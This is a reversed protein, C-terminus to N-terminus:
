REANLGIMASACSAQWRDVVGLGACRQHLPRESQRDEDARHRKRDLRHDVLDRVVTDNGAVGIQEIIRILTPRVEVVEPQHTREHAASVDEGPKGGDSVPEVDAAVHGAVEVGLRGFAELFTKTDRRYLEEAGANQLMVDNVNKRCVGAGRLRVPAVEVPLEVREIQSLPAQVRQEVLVAVVRDRRREGRQGRPRFRQHAGIDGRKRVTGVAIIIKEVVVADGIKRQRDREIEGDLAVPQTEVERTRRRGALTREVDRAGSRHSAAVDRELVQEGVHRCVGAAQRGDLEDNGIRGQEAYRLRARDAAIGLGNQADDVHDEAGKGLDRRLARLPAGEGGDIRERKGAPTRMAAFPHHEAEKAAAQASIRLAVAEVM